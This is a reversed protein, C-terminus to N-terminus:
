GLPQDPPVLQLMLTLPSIPSPRFGLARYFGAAGEDIAHVLLARAGILRQAQLSQGIAHAVLARGLGQGQQRRDVALRGLVVVPLPNPMNRRLAGPVDALVISGAALSSYALVRQEQAIVSTRSVGALQNILARHQLWQNLSEVGCDFAELQHRASLAEPAQM